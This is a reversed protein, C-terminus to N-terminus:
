THPSPPVRYQMQGARSRQETCQRAGPRLALPQRVHKVIVAAQDDQQPIRGSFGRVTKFLLDIMELASKDRHSSIVEITREIGFREGCQSPAEVIGDSVLLVVGEPELDVPPPTAIVVRKDIGLPISTSRLRQRRGTSHVLYGEHGAGAYTLSRNEPDLCAFFLTVFTGDDTDEVLFANTLTLIDSVNDHTVVLARLYARVESMLLASAFGHGSVDGVVIGVRGNRMPIFDFYDGGTAEAPHSEGAIDFAPLNPSAVPLLRAQIARAVRMREESKRVVDEARRRKGDLTSIVVAVVVYLAGLPIDEWAPDLSYIPPLFVFDLILYSLGAAFLGPGKGGFWSSVVVAFLFLPSAIHGPVDPRLVAKLALIFVFALATVLTGVGYRVLSSRTRPM